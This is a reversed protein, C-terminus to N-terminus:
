RTPEGTSGIKSRGTGLSNRGFETTIGGVLKYFSHVM